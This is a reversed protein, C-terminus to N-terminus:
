DLSGRVGIRRTNREDGRLTQVEAKNRHRPLHNWRPFREADVRHFRVVAPLESMLSLTTLDHNATQRISQERRRAVRVVEERFEPPFAKPM